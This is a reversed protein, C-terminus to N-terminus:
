QLISTTITNLHTLQVSLYLSQPDVQMLHLFHMPFHSLLVIFQKLQQHLTAVLVDFVFELGKLDLVDRPLDVASEVSKWGRKKDSIISDNDCVMMCLFGLVREM